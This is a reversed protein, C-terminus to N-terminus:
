ANSANGPLQQVEEGNAIKRRVTWHLILHTNHYNHSCQVIVVRALKHNHLWLYQLPLLSTCQVGTVLKVELCIMLIYKQFPCADSLDTVAATVSNRGAHTGRFYSLVSPHRHHLVTEELSPHTPPSCATSIIYMTSITNHLVTADRIDTHQDM